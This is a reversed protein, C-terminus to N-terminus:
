EHGANQRRREQEHEWAAECETGQCWRLGDALPERCYHCFGTAVPGAPKRQRLAEALEHEIEDDARDALDNM